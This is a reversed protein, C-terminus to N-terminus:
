MGDLEPEGVDQRSTRINRRKLTQRLLPGWVVHRRTLEDQWRALAQRKQEVDSATMGDPLREVYCLEILDRLGALHDLGDQLFDIRAGVDAAPEATRAAILLDRAPQLIQEHAVIPLVRWSAFLPHNGIGMDACAREHLGNVNQSVAGGAPVPCALDQTHHEWYDLYQRVVPAAARFASCYEDLVDEVTLDPRCSLRGILYYFPGQTSWYGMLSDFMFGAMSHERAFRFYEGAQHLPLHPHCGGMHYWNPRLFLQAGRDSWNSWQQEAREDYTHVVALLMGPQLQTDPLTDRYASYAYCSLRADAREARLRPLLTNWLHTYRGTLNVGRHFWIDDPDHEIRDLARCNDCTCWGSGDNPGVCWSPPRGADRWEQLIQDAVGPHSVCLKVARERPFPQQQGAPPRAFWDPHAEHYTEWWHPFSHTFRHNSRSGLLHRYGWLIMERCTQAWPPSPDDRTADTSGGDSDDLRAEYPNQGGAVVLARLCRQELDPRTRLDLSPVQLDPQSPVHTGADSPWLWRVGVYHDLFHYVAYLTGPSSHGVIDKPSGFLDGQDHGCFHIAGGQSRIVYEEESFDTTDLDGVILRVLDEAPSELPTHVAVVDGTAQTLHLALESAALTVVESNNAAIVVCRSRGDQALVHM